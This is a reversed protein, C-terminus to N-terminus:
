LDQRQGPQSARVFDRREVVTRGTVERERTSSIRRSKRMHRREDEAHTHALHNPLANASYRGYIGPGLHAQISSM